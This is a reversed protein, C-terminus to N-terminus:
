MIYNIVELMKSNVDNIQKELDTNELNAEEISKEINQISEKKVLNNIFLKTM